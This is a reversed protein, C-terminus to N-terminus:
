KTAKKARSPSKERLIWGKTMSIVNILIFFLNSLIELKVMKYSENGLDIEKDVDTVSLTKWKWQM